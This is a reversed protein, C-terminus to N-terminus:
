FVQTAVTESCDLYGANVWTDDFCRQVCIEEVASDVLLASGLGNWDHFFTPSVEELLQLQRCSLGYFFESRTSEDGGFSYMSIRIMSLSESNHFLSSHESDPHPPRRLMSSGHLIGLALLLKPPELM